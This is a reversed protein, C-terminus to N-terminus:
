RRKIITVQTYVESDGFGGALGFGDVYTTNCEQQIQFVKSATITFVGEIISDTQSCNTVTNPCFANSGLITTTADSTNQLRAHHQAVFYGPVRAKLYYEGAELTFQNSALTAFAAGSAANLDRTRWAGSNCQGGSTSNAKQDSIFVIEDGKAGVIEWNSNDSVVEIATDQGYINYTTFGDITESGDPDLIVPRSDDTGISKIKYRKGQVGVATPLTLTFSASTPDALVIDDSTTLTYDGTKSVVAGSMAGSAVKAFTVSNDALQATDVAGNELGAGEITGDTICGGDLNGNLRNYVTNLDGNYKTSTLVSNASVNTRSDATCTGANAEFAILFILSTLIAMKKFM